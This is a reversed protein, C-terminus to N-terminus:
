ARAAIAGDTRIPGSKKTALNPNLQFDAAVEDVIEATIQARRMAYGAILSNECITNVLRPIGASYRYIASLAEPSFITQQGGGAMSLRRCVYERTQRENLPELRCRFALRQKVQRLSPLEMKVDLEPQGILVIQLLKHNATELNTLLRIEELVEWELLQAEDVVLVVTSNEKYRAVLLNNLEILLEAKSKGKCAIGLDTLVYHLFESANLRTNFIYAFPIRSRKLFAFLCQAVLTKGTGVEGTIMVFGKRRQIGHAVSALAENHRPTPCFFAPDPSIEFPQRKLGYFQEYM